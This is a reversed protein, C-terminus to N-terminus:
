PRAARIRHILSLCDAIQANLAGEDMRLLTGHEGTRPLPVVGLEAAVPRLDATGSAPTIATLVNVRDTRAAVAALRNRLKDLQRGILPPAQKGAVKGPYPAKPDVFVADWFGEHAKAKYDDGIGADVEGLDVTGEPVFEDLENVEPSILVSRGQTAAYAVAVTGASQAPLVPDIAPNEVWARVTAHDLALGCLVSLIQRCREKVDGLTDDDIPMKRWTPLALEIARSYNAILTGVKTMCANALPTTSWQHTLPALERALEHKPDLLEGIRDKARALRAADGLTPQPLLQAVTTIGHCLSHVSQLWQHYDGRLEYAHLDCLLRLENRVTPSLESEAVMSADGMLVPLIKRTPDEQQLQLALAVEFRVVDREATNLARENLTKVWEPGIVVLVVRAGRVAAELERLFADGVTLDARDFFLREAGFWEELKFYLMWAYPNTDRRRYSIFIPRENAPM